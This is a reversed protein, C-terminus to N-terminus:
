TYGEVNKDNKVTVTFFETIIIGERFAYKLYKRYIEPSIKCKKTCIYIKTLFVLTGMKFILVSFKM